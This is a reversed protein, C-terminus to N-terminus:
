CNEDDERDERKPVEDDELGIGARKKEAADHAYRTRLSHRKLRM